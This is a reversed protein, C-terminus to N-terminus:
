ITRRRRNANALILTDIDPGAPAEDATDSDPDDAPPEPQGEDVPSRPPDPDLLPDTQDALLVALEARQEATMTGIQDALLENRIALMEAGANAPFPSPGYEKLGLALRRRITRGDAGRRVESKYVPGRFSQFRVSGSDILELVEDALPTQNYRTVTLLGRGDPKVEIPTGIPMSFRESPTGWITMGHNFVVNVGGIGRGLERNFAAPDIEEDYDGEHDRVPYPQDFTAAYATVTRGDTGGREIDLLPVSREITPFRDAKGM